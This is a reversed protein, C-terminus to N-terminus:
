AETNEVPKEAALVGLAVPKISPRPKLCGVDEVPANPRHRLMEVVFPGCM